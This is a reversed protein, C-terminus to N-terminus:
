DARVDHSVLAPTPAPAPTVPAVVPTSLPPVPARNARPPVIRYIQHGGEDRWEEPGVWSAKVPVRQGQKNVWKPSRLLKTHARRSHAIRQTHGRTVVVAGVKVGRNNAEHHRHIVTYHERARLWEVSKGQTTPTVSAMFNYPAFYTYCLSRMVHYCSITVDNSSDRIKGNSLSDRLNADSLSLSSATAKMADFVGALDTFMDRRYDLEAISADYETKLRHLKRRLTKLDGEPLDKVKAIDPMEDHRRVLDVNRQKVREFDPSAEEFLQTVEKWDNTRFMFYNAQVDSDKGRTFGVTTCLQSMQGKSRMFFVVLLMGPHREAYGFLEGTYGEHMKASDAISVCFRFRDFPTRVLGDDATLGVLAADEDTWRAAQGPDLTLYPAVLASVPVKVHDGIKPIAQKLLDNLHAAPIM